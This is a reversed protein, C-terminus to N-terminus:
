GYLFEKQKKAIPFVITKRSIYTKKLDEAIRKTFTRMDTNPALIKKVEIFDPHTKQLIPKESLPLKTRGM